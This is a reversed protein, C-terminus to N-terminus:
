LLNYGTTRVKENVRSTVFHSIFLEVVYWSYSGALDKHIFNAGVLPKLLEARIMWQVELLVCVSPHDLM